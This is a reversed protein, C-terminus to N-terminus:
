EHTNEGTVEQIKRRPKSSFPLAVVTKTLGPVDDFNLGDYEGNNWHKIFEDGTLQMNKRAIADFLEESEDKGLRVFNQEEM